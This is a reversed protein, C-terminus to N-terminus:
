VAVKLQRQKKTQAVIDRMLKNLNLAVLSRQGAAKLNDWKREQPKNFGYKASKLSGISGEMRGRESSVQPRDAAAVAWAAKGKPQIGVKQVGATQLAQVTKVASGGRDYTFLEPAATVGFIARYCVLSLLPMQSEVPCGDLYM